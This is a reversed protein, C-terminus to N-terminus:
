DGPEVRLPFHLLDAGAITALFRCTVWRETRSTTRGHGRPPVRVDYARLKRHLDAPSVANFPGM